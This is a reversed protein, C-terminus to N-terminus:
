RVGDFNTESSNFDYSFMEPSAEPNKCLNQSKSLFNKLDLNPVSSELTIISDLERM